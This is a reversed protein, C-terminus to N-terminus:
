YRALPRAPVGVATVGDPVSGIVIGGAGIVSGAGVTAGPIAGSNIGMLVGSMLRVGGALSVGPAVHVYDDLVCDHDISARTNVIVHRGLRADPQIVSGALVVTGAGLVVSPHVVASPHIVVAFPGPLLQAFAARTQNHGIALLFSVDAPWSGTEIPGSVRHGLLSKEWKERDDDLVSVVTGGAAEVTAIVVKAHGGAGVVVIRKALRM